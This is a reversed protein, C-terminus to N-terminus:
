AMQFPINATLLIDESHAVCVRVALSNPLTQSSQQNLRAQEYWRVQGRTALSLGYTPLQNTARECTILIHWSVSQNAHEACEGAGWEGEHWGTKASVLKKKQM